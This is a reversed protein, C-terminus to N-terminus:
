VRGLLGRVLEKIEQKYLIFTICLMVSYFLIFAIFLHSINISVLYILFFIILYIIETKGSKLYSYDRISYFYWIFYIITTMLAITETTNNILMGIINLLILTISMAVATFCYRREQKNAKYLNVYLANIIIVAPFSAFLIAIIKLSPIYKGIFTSVIFEYIFYSGSALVGVILLYKKFIIVEDQDQRRALYPYFTMTVSSILSTIITVISGAFTYYAFDNMTLTFKVFWRDASNIVIGALTGIMIFIGVKFNNLIDRFDIETKYGKYRKFFYIELGIFVIFYSLINVLIFPWYNDLKLVYILFLNLFLMLNPSLIVIKTYISFKGLAQYIFQYLSQINMPLIAAAFAILIPDYLILGLLIAIITIALQFYVLFKHEGKLRKIDIESEEKGGYKIYVGDNFGFHLIGVYGIYLSFTKYSAFQDISLFEPVLFGNIVGAIVNIVNSNFVKFLDKKLQM